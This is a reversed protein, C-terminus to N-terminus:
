WFNQLVQCDASLRAPRSRGGRGGGLLHLAPPVADGGSAGRALDCDPASLHFEEVSRQVGRCKKLIPFLYEAFFQGQTTILLSNRFSRSYRQQPDTDQVLIFIM